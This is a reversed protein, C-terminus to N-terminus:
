GRKGARGSTGEGSRTVSVSGAEQMRTGAFLKAAILEVELLWEPKLLQPVRVSTSAHKHEGLYRSRAAGYAPYNHAGVVFVTLKVIDSVEMQAAQLIAILNRWLQDMQGEIDAPVSVDPRFGIEGATHLVRANPPIVVGHSYADM